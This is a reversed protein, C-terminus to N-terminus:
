ASFEQFCRLFLRLRSERLGPEPAPFYALAGPVAPRQVDLIHLILHFEAQHAAAVVLDRAGIDEVAFLARPQPGFDDGFKIPPYKAPRDASFCTPLCDIMLEDNPNCFYAFSLRRAAGGSLCEFPVPANSFVSYALPQVAGVVLNVFYFLIFARDFGDCLDM